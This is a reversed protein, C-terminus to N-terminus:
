LRLLACLVDGSGDCPGFMGLLGRRSFGLLNSNISILWSRSPVLEIEEPCWDSREFTDLYGTALPTDM